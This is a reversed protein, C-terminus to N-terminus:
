SHLKNFQTNNFYNIFESSGILDLIRLRGILQEILIRYSFDLSLLIQLLVHIRWRIFLIAEERKNSSKEKVLLSVLNHIIQILSFFRVEDKSTSMISASNIRYEYHIKSIMKINNAVSLVQPTWLEDEHIINPLFEINNNKLFKRNYLYNFVMPVYGESVMRGLLGNGSMNHIDLDPFRWLKEDGNPYVSIVRGIVIDPQYINAFDIMERLGDKLLKDDSDVFLIYQGRALSMGINRATSLGQNAQSIYRSHAHSMCFEAIISASNDTSGDNIIIIEFTHEDLVISNLCELVYRGTNYVPVIFSIFPPPLNTM